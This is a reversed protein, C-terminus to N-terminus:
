IKDLENTTWAYLNWHNKQVQLTFSLLLHVLKYLVPNKTDLAWLIKHFWLGRMNEGWILLMCISVQM